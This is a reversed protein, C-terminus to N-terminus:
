LFNFEWIVSLGIIFEEFSDDKINPTDVLNYGNTSKIGRTGCLAIIAHFLLIEASLIFVWM